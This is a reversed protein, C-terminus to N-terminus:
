NPVVLIVKRVNQFADRLLVIYVGRDNFSYNIISRGYITAKYIPRGARDFIILQAPSNSEARIVVPTGARVISSEVNLSVAANAFSISLLLVALLRLIKKM